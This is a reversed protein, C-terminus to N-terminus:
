TTIKNKVKQTVKRSNEMSSAGPVKGGIICLSTLTKVGKGIGAKYWACGSDKIGRSSDLTNGQMKGGEGPMGQGLKGWCAQTLVWLTVRGEQPKKKCSVLM